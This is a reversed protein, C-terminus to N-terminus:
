STWGDLKRVTVRAPRVLHGKFEVGRQFVQDVTDDEEEETPVRMVAEMREPDFAEGWPEVWGGRGRGPGAAAEAGGTPGGGARVGATAQAEDLEHMRQFDDFVDLLTAVLSAQARTGSSLLEERTRKRYNEFEAALRLHRDSLEALERELVTLGGGATAERSGGTRIWWPTSGPNAPHDDSSGEGAEAKRPLRRGSRRTTADNRKRDTRDFESPLLDRHVVRNGPIV